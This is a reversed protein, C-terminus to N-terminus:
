PSSDDSISILSLDIMLDNSKEALGGDIGFSDDSTSDSIPSKSLIMSSTLLRFSLCRSVSRLISSDLALYSAILSIESKSM